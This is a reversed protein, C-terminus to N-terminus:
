LPFTVEQLMIDRRVDGEAFVSIINREFFRNAEWRKMRVGNDTSRTLIDKMYDIITLNSLQEAKYHIGVLVEGTSRTIHLGESCGTNAMVSSCSHDFVM